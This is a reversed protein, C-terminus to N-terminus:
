SLKTEEKIWSLYEESGAIIPLAIIEPVEYSHLQKVKEIIIDLNNKVSKLIMLVEQEDCVKGQWHFISQIPSLINACAALKLEVLNGGIKQAEEKSSTTVFIVIEENM